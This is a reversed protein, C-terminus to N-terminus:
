NLEVRAGKVKNSGSSRSVVHTGDILVKGAKTLTITALGCRLVLQEPATVITREGDVDIEVSGTPRLTNVEQERVVGIVIPRGQDGGEFVLVVVRGVHDGHLDLTSRAPIPAGGTQGPYRVLPTLTAESFGVLHGTGVSAGPHPRASVDAGSADRADADRRARKPM